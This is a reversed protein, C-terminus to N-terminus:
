PPLEKSVRLTRWAIIGSVVAMIAIAATLVAVLYWRLRIAEITALTAVAASNGAWLASLKIQRQLLRRM